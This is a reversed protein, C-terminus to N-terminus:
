IAGKLPAFRVHRRADNKPLSPTNAQAAYEHQEIDNVNAFLAINEEVFSLKGQLMRRVCLITTASSKEM